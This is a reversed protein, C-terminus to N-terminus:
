GRDQLSGAQCRRDHAVVSAADGELLGGFSDGSDRGIRGDQDRELFTGVEQPRQDHRPEFWRGHDTEVAEKRRADGLRCTAIVGGARVAKGDQGGGAVPCEQLAEGRIIGVALDSVCRLRVVACDNQRKGRLLHFGCAGRGDGKRDLIDGSAPDFAGGVGVAVGLQGGVLVDVVVAGRAQKGDVLVAVRGRHPECCASHLAARQDFNRGSVDVHGVEVTLLGGVCGSGEGRLQLLRQAEESEVAPRDVAELAGLERDGDSRELRADAERSGADGIGGGIGSQTRREACVAIQEGLARQADLLQEGVQPKVGPWEVANPGGFHGCGDSSEM